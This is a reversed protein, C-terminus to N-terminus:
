SFLGNTVLYLCQNGYALFGKHRIITDSQIDLTIFRNTQRHTITLNNGYLGDQWTALIKDSNKLDLGSKLLTLFICLKQLLLSFLYLTKMCALSICGFLLIQM